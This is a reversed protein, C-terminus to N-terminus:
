FSFAPLIKHSDPPFFDSLATKVKNHVKEEIKNKISKLLNNMRTKKNVTLLTQIEGRLPPPPSLQIFGTDRCNEFM